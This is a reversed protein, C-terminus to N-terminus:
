EPATEQLFTKQLMAYILMNQWRPQGDEDLYKYTYEHLEGERVFGLHELLNWSRTNAEDAYAIIRRVTGSEFANRILAASAEKAYGQGQYAANLTYGLEYTGYQGENHFYLKGIVKSERKLYIAFFSDNQSLNIAEQACDERKFPFYPEFHVVKPDTLFEALDEWDDPQIRRLILHPTEIPSFSESFTQDYM